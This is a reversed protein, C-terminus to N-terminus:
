SRRGPHAIPVWLTPMPAGRRGVVGILRRLLGPVTSGNMGQALMQPGMQGDIIAAVLERMGPEAMRDAPVIGEGRELVAGFEHAGMGPGGPGDAYTTGEHYTPPQQAAVEAFAVGGSVAAAAAAIQPGPPPLPTALANSVSLALNLGAQAMAAAKSALFAAKLGKKLGADTMGGYIASTLDVLAQAGSRALDIQAAQTAAQAAAADARAAARQEEVAADAEYILAAREEQFQQEIALETQHAADLAALRQEAALTEADLQESLRDEIQQIQQDREAQLQGLADLEGQAIERRQVALDALFATLGEEAAQRAKTAETAEAQAAAGAQAASGAEEEAQKARILAANAAQATDANEAISANLAAIRARADAAGSEFGTVADFASNLARADDAIVESLSRGSAAARGITAGLGTTLDAVVVLAAAIGRQLNIYKQGSAIEAELANIKDIQSRTFAAVSEQTAMRIELEAIQAASLKGTAEAEALLADRLATEAPLLAQALEHEFERQANIREVELTAARYAVAGAAVAATLTGLVVANASILAGFDGWVGAAGEAGDALDGVTRAAEAAEPSVIALAAALKGSAGGVKGIQDAVGEQAAAAKEAAKIQEAAAKEAAATARRNADETAKASRAYAAQQQALYRATAAAAAKETIGPIKATESSFRSVDALIEFTYGETM